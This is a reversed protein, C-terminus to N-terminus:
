DVNCVLKRLGDEFLVEVKKSHILEVVFGIGFAPHDIVDNATLGTSIDFPEPHEVGFKDALKNWARKQGDPDTLEAEDILGEIVASAKRRQAASLRKPNARVADECSSETLSEDDSHLAGNESQEKDPELDTISEGSRFETTELQNDLEDVRNGKTM